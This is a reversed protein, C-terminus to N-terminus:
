RRKWKGQFRSIGNEPDFEPVRGYHLVPWKLTVSQGPPLRGEKKAQKELERRTVSEEATTVDM